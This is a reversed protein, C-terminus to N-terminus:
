QLRQKVMEVAERSITCGMKFVPVTESLKEAMELCIDLQKEDWMLSIYRHLLMLVKDCEDLETITNESAQELLAVGTLEYCGDHFVDSTGCWPIGYVYPRGNEFGVLNIDGNFEETGEYQKWLEAHTSKGVGSRASFLIAKGQSVVSSSHIAIRGQLQVFYLFFVRLAQFLDEAVEGHDGCHHSIRINRGDASMVAETVYEASPFRFYYGGELEAVSLLENNIIVRGFNVAVPINTCGIVVHQVPMEGAHSEQAEEAEFIDFHRPIVRIDGELELRIGAINYKRVTDYENNYNKDFNLGDVPGDSSVIYEKEPKKTGLLGKRTLRRIYDLVAEYVEWHDDETCEYETMCKRTLRECIASIDEDSASAGDQSAENDAAEDLANWIFEGTEDIMLDHSMDASAQGIGLLYKRGYIDRVVYNPNKTM